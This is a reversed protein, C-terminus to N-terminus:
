PRLPAAIWTRPARYDLASHRSSPNRVRSPRGQRRMCGDAEEWSPLTDEAQEWHVVSGEDCWQLLHPMATGHSGVTMYRRMSAMNDWATTTWFALDRDALLSGGCFGPATRVQQRTKLLDAVFAPLFRVSRLRLRTVSILPM